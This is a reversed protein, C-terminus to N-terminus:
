SRGCCASQSPKLGKPWCGASDGREAGPEDLRVVVAGKYDIRETVEVRTRRSEAAGPKSTGPVYLFEDVSRGKTRGGGRMLLIAEGHGRTALLGVRAGRKTVIANTGARHENVLISTQSLLNRLTLGLGAAAARSRPM